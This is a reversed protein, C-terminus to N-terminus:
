SRYHKHVAHGNEFIVRLKASRSCTTYSRTKSVAGNATITLILRGRNNLIKAVESATHGVGDSAYVKDYDARTACPRFKKVVLRQTRKVAKWAGAGEIYPMYGTLPAGLNIEDPDVQSGVLQDVPKCLVGASRGDVVPVFCNPNQSIELEAEKTVPGVSGDYAVSYGGETQRVYYHLKCSLTTPTSSPGQTGIEVITCYEVRVAGTPAELPDMSGNDYSANLVRTGAPVTRISDILQLPRYRVKTTVSYVGPRLKASTVNRKLVRKKKSITLRASGIENGNNVYRPAIRATGRYSATQTPIKNVHVPPPPAGAALGTGPPVQEASAVPATLLAATLAIISGSVILSKLM